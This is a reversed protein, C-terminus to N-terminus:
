SSFAEFLLGVTIVGAHECCCCRWEVRTRMRSRPAMWGSEEEKKWRVGVRGKIKRESPISHGPKKEGM